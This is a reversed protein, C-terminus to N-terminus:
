NVHILEKRSEDVRPAASRGLKLINLAANVDRDHSAGCSSCDWERIGLGAIGKPRGPPLIGCSSCTQTTFREDVEVYRAGHRSAKYRLMNRFMSWGADLVSKAMRTKAIASVNLDGVVILKNERAIKASAKHLHDRRINAIKYHIARTRRKNGSRQATALKAELRRYPTINEIKEGTSMTALSKLGLDVGVEGAGTAREDEIGAQITVWWRGSADEVFAGGRADAPLPRRKAGFFRYKKGLYAVSNGDLQRSQKQFPVWGLARRPGGSARFRPCKRHQDRNKAFRDCVSQLTQAHIGLDRSTGKILATLDYHTLWRRRLGDRYMRQTKRQTNACFNWVFNVAGSLRRLEIAHRNKLKYKYTTM